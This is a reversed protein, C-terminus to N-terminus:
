AGAIEAVLDDGGLLADHAPKVLDARLDAADEHIDAALEFTEFLGLLRIAPRLAGALDHELDSQGPERAMVSQDARVAAGRSASSAAHEVPAAVVVARREIRPPLVWPM